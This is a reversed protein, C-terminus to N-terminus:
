GVALFHWLTTAALYALVGAVMLGLTRRDERRALSYDGARFPVVVGITFIIGGIIFQYLLGSLQV